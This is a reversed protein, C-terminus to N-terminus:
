NSNETKAETRWIQFMEWLKVITVTAFIWWIPYTPFIYRALALSFMHVLSTYAIFGILVLSVSWNKRSLWMGILGAILSIYHWIYILLKPWFGQGNILKGFAQISMGNNLWELAMEKLSQGAFYITGHPQLYANLL